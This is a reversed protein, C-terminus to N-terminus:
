GIEEAIVAGGVVTMRVYQGVSFSSVAGGPPPYCRSPGFGGDSPVPPVGTWDQRMVKLHPGYTADAPVVEVVRGFASGGAVLGEGSRAASLRVRNRDERYAQM